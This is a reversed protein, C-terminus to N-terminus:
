IKPLSEVVLNALYEECLWMAEYTAGGLHPTIIINKSKKQLNFIPSKEINELENALVDTAIGKIRGSNFVNSLAEEDWIKGRSTNIIFSGKKLHCINESNLLHYTEDTLHVHISVIDSVNLLKKLSSFRHYQVNSVFPDYYGVQMDFASAFNAVKKGVRGLGIIGIRKDKLQYGRFRDRDWEERKVSDNAAPINRVLAGLLAWTHEATSPISNLFDTHGRLSFVEINASQLLQLDLHDLGTTASIILKLRPFKKIVELDIKRNLRVILIDINELREAADITDWTSESYSYGNEEWIAISEKSYLYPEANLVVMLNNKKDM